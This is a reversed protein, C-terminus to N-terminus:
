FSGNSALGMFSLLKAVRLAMSFQTVSTSWAPRGVGGHLDANVVLGCHGM